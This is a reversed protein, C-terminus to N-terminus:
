AYVYLFLRQRNAIKLMYSLTSITSEHWLTGLCSLCMDVGGCSNIEEGGGDWSVPSSQFHEWVLQVAESLCCLFLRIFSTERVEPSWTAVSLSKLIKELNRKIGCHHTSEWCASGAPICAHTQIPTHVPLNMRNWYLYLRADSLLRTALVQRVHILQRIKCNRYSTKNVEYNIECWNNM